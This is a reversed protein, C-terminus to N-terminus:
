LSKKYFSHFGNLCLLYLNLRLRISFYKRERRRVMSQFAVFFQEGVTSLRGCLSVAIPVFELKVQRNPNLHNITSEYKCQKLSEAKELIDNASSKLCKLNVISSSPLQM